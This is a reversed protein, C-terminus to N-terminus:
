YEEAYIHSSGRVIQTARKVTNKRVNRGKRM